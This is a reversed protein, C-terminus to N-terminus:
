IEGKITFAKVLLGIIIGAAIVIAIIPMWQALQSIGATANEVALYASTNGCKYTVLWAADLVFTGGGEVLTLNIGHRAVSTWNGSALEETGNMVRSASLFPACDSPTVFTLNTLTESDNYSISTTLQGALNQNILVGMGFVLGILIFLSAIKSLDEFALGKKGMM